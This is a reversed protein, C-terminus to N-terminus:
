HDVSADPDAATSGDGEGDREFVVGYHYPGLEVTEAATFGAPEVAEVTEGPSMRLDAPPGRPEGLVTTETRPRDHWNVVAFRGGPLLSERVRRALETGDPVGHFTNAMLADTVREPLCDPLALADTDITHVTVGAGEAATTLEGLLDADLDLGYVPGDIIRAAPVTFHGNGCAIDLLSDRRAIGLRRLTGEPDPWLAHWWDRDPHGTNQFDSM